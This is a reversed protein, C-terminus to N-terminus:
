QQQTSSNLKPQLTKPRGNSLWHELIRNIIVQAILYLISYLVPGMSTRVENTIQSRAFDLPHDIDINKNAWEWAKRGHKRETRSLKRTNCFQEYNM